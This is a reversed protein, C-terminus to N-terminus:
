YALKALNNKLLLRNKVKAYFRGLSSYAVDILWTTAILKNKPFAM